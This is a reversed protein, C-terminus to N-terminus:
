GTFEEPVVPVGGGGEGGEGPEGGATLPKLARPTRSGYVSLRLFMECALFTTDRKVKPQREQSLFTEHRHERISPNLMVNVALQM